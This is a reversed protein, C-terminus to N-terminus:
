ENDSEPPDVLTTDAIRDWLRWLFEDPLTKAHDKLWASAAPAIKGFGVKPWEMLSQAIKQETRDDAYASRSWLLQGWYDIPWDGNTASIVLGRLARDPDSACLGQWSDGELFSEAAISRAEPVLEADATGRLKDKDGRERTGSHHWVHFGAQESPKPLWEPWRACIDELIKTAEPGIDLGCREMDSLIEFRSRDIFRDIEAGERFWSRPPGECLLLLIQQQKEASFEKWRARILRYVEVTSHTLFLEGLPLGILMDAAFDSPVDANAFAFLALRRMLRFQSDRWNAAIALAKVSSKALLRTWVEAMVRVIAQFGARLDNQRDRAVSPIDTDSASYGESGEVGVDTADALAGRLAGTLQSLLDEDAEPAGKDPWAALVDDSSVDEDVEFNISMLDSPQEPVRSEASDYWSFRKGVKLKPRLADALQELLAISHDGRKLQPMIEYWESRARNHKAARMHRIVLSWCKALLPPLMEAQANLSYDLFSASEQGFFRINAVVDRVADADAFNREIWAILQRENKVLNMEWLMPLWAMSPNVESLMAALDDGSLFFRLQEREFPNAEAPTKKRIATAKLNDTM